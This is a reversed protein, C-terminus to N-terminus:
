RANWGHAPVMIIQKTVMNRLRRPNHSRSNSIKRMCVELTRPETPKWYKNWRRPAKPDGYYSSYLTEIHWDGREYTYPHRRQEM